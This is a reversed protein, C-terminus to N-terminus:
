SAAKAMADIAFSIIHDRRRSRIINADGSARNKTTTKTRTRNVMAETARTPSAHILETSLASNRHALLPITFLYDSKVTLKQLLDGVRRYSTRLELRQDMM